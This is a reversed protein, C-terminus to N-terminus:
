ATYDVIHAPEALGAAEEVVAEFPDGPKRERKGRKQERDPSRDRVDIKNGQADRASAITENRESVDNIFAAQAALQSQRPGEEARQVIPASQVAQAYSLQLDAPRISM